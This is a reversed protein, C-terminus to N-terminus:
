KGVPLKIKFLETVFGDVIETNVADYLLKGPDFAFLCINFIDKGHDRVIRLIGIITRAYKVVKIFIGAHTFIQHFKKIFDIEQPIVPTVLVIMIVLRSDPVKHVPKFLDIIIDSADLGDM